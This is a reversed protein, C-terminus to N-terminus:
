FSLGPQRLTFALNQGPDRVTFGSPLDALDQINGLPSDVLVRLGGETLQIRCIAGLRDRDRQAIAYDIESVGHHDLEVKGFCIEV